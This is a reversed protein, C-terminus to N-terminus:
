MILSLHLCGSPALVGRLDASRREGIYLTTTGREEKCRSDREWEGEGRAAGCVHCLSLLLARGFYNNVM